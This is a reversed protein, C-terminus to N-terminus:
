HPSATHPKSFQRVVLHRLELLEYIIMGRTIHLSSLGGKLEHDFASATGGGRDKVRLGQASCCREDNTLRITSLKGNHPESPKSAKAKSM